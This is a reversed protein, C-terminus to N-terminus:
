KVLTAQFRTIQLPHIYAKGSTWDMRSLHIFTLHSDSSDKINFIPLCYFTKQYNHITGKNDVSKEISYSYNFAIKNAFIKNLHACLGFM